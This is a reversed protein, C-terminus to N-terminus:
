CLELSNDLFADKKYTERPYKLMFFSIVCLIFYIIIMQDSKNILIMFLILTINSFISLTMTIDNKIKKELSECLLINIGEHTITILLTAIFLLFARLLYNKSFFGLFLLFSIILFAFFIVRKRESNTFVVNSYIKGILEAGFFILNSLYVNEIINELKYFLGYFILNVVIYIPLIKCIFKRHLNNSLVSHIPKFIKIYYTRLKYKVTLNKYYNFNKSKNFDSNTTTGNSKQFDNNSDTIEFRVKKKLHSQNFNITKHRIEIFNKENNKLYNKNYSDCFYNDPSKKFKGSSISFSKNFTYKEQSTIRKFNRDNDSSKLNNRKPVIEYSSLKKYILNQNNNTNNDTINEHGQESPNSNNKIDSAEINDIECNNIKKVIKEIKNIESILLQNNELNLDNLHILYLINKYCEEFLNKNLLFSFNELLYINAYNLIIILLIIQIAFLIRFDALQSMVFITFLGSFSFLISIRNKLLSFNKNHINESSISIILLYFSLDLSTVFHFLYLVFRFNIILVSVYMILTMNLNLKFIRLSGYKDCFYYFVINGFIRGIITIIALQTFFNDFDCFADYKTIYNDVSEYNIVLSKNIKSIKNKKDKTLFEKEQSNYCYKLICQENNQIIKLNELNKIFKGFLKSIEIVVDNSINSIKENLNDSKNKIFYELIHKKDKNDLCLYSPMQKQSPLITFTLMSIFAAIFYLAFIIKQYKEQYLVKKSVETLFLRHEDIENNIRAKDIFPM